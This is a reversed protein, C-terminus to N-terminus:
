LKVTSFASASKKGKQKDFSFLGKLLQLKLGYIVLFDLDFYHGVQEAELFSWKLFSLKKEAELPNNGENTIGNLAQTINYGADQKKAKRFLALEQRLSYDFDKWRRLMPTDTAHHTFNDIQTRSLVAFDQEPLWGRAQGLFDHWSLNPQQTFNLSPLSASLYYYKDM